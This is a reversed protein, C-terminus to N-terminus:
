AKFKGPTVGVYKKFLRTFTGPNAYGVLASLEKVSYERDAADLVEQAKRIRVKQIYELLGEGTQQKFYKSLYPLSVQLQDAIMSVSLDPNGYQEEILAVARDRLTVRNENLIQEVRAEIEGLIAYIEKELRPLTRCRVLRDVPQLRDLFDRDLTFAFEAITTLVTNILGFMRVKVLDIPVNAARMTEGALERVVRRANEFDGARVFHRFRQEKESFAAEEAGGGSRGLVDDAHIVVGSGYILTYELAEMAERYADKIESISGRTRSVAVSCVVGFKKALFTRTLEAAQLLEKKQLARDAHRFNVLACVFSDVEIVFGAHTGGIADQLANKAIFSILEEEKGGGSPELHLLMVAFEGSVFHNRYFEHMDEAADGGSLKGKILRVLYYDRLASNQRMVKREMHENEAVISSVTEELIRYENAPGREADPKRGLLQLLREIPRYNKSSFVYALLGGLLLALALMVATLRRISAAKFMFLDAPVLSVYKWDAVASPVAYAMMERGAYDLRVATHDRLKAVDLPEGYAGADAAFVVRGASNVVIVPTETTWQSMNLQLVLSGMADDPDVSAYPVLPKVFAVGGAAPVYAKERPRLMLRRWEDYPLGSPEYYRSHYLDPNFVGNSALIADSNRLYIYFQGIFGNTLMYARFENSLWYKNYSHIPEEDGSALLLARVRPDLELKYAVQEIERLKADLSQGVQKLIADDARHIETEIIRMSQTYIISGFVVPVFLILVYPLVFSYLFTRRRRLFSGIKSM